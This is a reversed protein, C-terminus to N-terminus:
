LATGIRLALNSELTLIDGNSMQVPAVAAAYVYQLNGGNGTGMKWGVNTVLKDTNAKSNQVKNVRINMNAPDLYATVLVKSALPVNGGNLLNNGQNIEITGTSLQTIQLNKNLGADIGSFFSSQSTEQFSQFAGIITYNVGILTDGRASVSLNTSTELFELAWLGGINRLAPRLSNDSQTAHFSGCLDNMRAVKDGNGSPITGALDTFCFRPDALWLSGGYSTVIAISQDLASQTSTINNIDAFWNMASSYTKIEPNQQSALALIRENFMGVPIAKTDLYAHWDGEYDYSLGTISRIKTQISETITPM